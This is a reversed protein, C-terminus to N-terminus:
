GELQRRQTATLRSRWGDTLLERLQRKRARRLWVLVWPQPEYYPTVFYTDPHEHLRAAREDDDVKVMIVEGHARVLDHEDPVRLRPGLQVFVKGNARWVPAGLRSGADALPLEDALECVTRWSAV